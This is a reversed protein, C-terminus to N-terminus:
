KNKPKASRLVWNKSRDLDVAAIKHATSNGKSYKAAKKEKIFKEKRYSAKAAKLQDSFQGM